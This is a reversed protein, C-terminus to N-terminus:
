PSLVRFYNMPATVPNTASTSAGTAVIPGGVNTWTGSGNTSGPMGPDTNGVIHYTTGTTSQWTIVFNTGTSDLAASTISFSAPTITVSGSAGTLTYNGAATGGLTLSGFSTITQHGVASGSLGATGGLTVNDSGVKNAITLAAAAVNTTGDYTKTGSLVVPLKTITLKTSTNTVGNLSGDGAYGYSITYPSGTVPTSGPNYIFSFDGTGDTTTTTQTNGNVTVYITEGMAPYTPGTAYSVKGGLSVGTGYPTSPSATLGSFLPVPNGGSVVLNVNGGSSSVSATAGAAIGAGTVTVTEGGGDIITGSATQIMTYTGAGLPAGSLNNNVTFANGGLSLSGAAVYLPPHTIDGNPSTPTFTLNVPRSGLNMSGNSLNTIVAATTGQAIGTGSATLTTNASLTYPSVNSVNLTGGAAIALTASNNISGSNSIILSGAGITTNGSYTNAGNLVMAGTGTKTLATKASAGDKIVGGFIGTTNGEGLQLTSLTAGSNTVVGTGTMMSFGENLGAMDFLGGAANSITVGTYVQDGGTGGLQILGGSNIISSSGLAHASSASAKALLLTGANANVAFFSNDGTGSLTLTGGSTKKITFAASGTVRGSITLSGAPTDITSTGTNNGFQRATTAASAGTYSLTGGSLIVNNTSIASTGSDAITNVSLTGASITTIGTYTNSGTLVTTGTGAKTFGAGGSINGSITVTPTGSLAQNQFTTTGSGPLTWNGSFTVPAAVLGVFIQSGSITTVPNTITIPGTAGTNGAGDNAPTALVTSAVGWTIPGTGFSNNNNFNLGASTGLLTGGSYTNNGYLYLSGNGTNEVRGSGTIPVTITTQNSATLNNIVTTGAFANLAGTGSITNTQGLNPTASGPNSLGTFTVGPSNLTMTTAGSTNPMALIAYAGTPFDVTSATLTSSLSWNATSTDWSGSGPPSGANNDWYVLTETTGNGAQLTLAAPASSPQFMNDPSGNYYASITYTGAAPSALSSANATAVGGATVTVPTGLPTSNAYFTVTGGSASPDPSITATITPATGTAVATPPTIVTTTPTTAQSASVTLVVESGVVSLSAEYGPAVGQGLVVVIPNPAGVISGTTGDGVQILNYSGAFLPAVTNSITIINNNFQLAGQSVWLAADDPDGSTALPTYIMLLDQSGLNVTGGAAGVITAAGVNIFANGAGEGGAVLLTNTSLNWTPYDSVDLTGTRASGNTGIFLTSANSISGTGTLQLTGDQVGVQGSFTNTASLALIGTGTKNLTNTGSIVGSITVLNGAGGSSLNVTGYAGLIAGNTVYTSGGANGKGGSLTWSGSFTVGATNGVINLGTTTGLYNIFPNPITVSSNGAVVLAGYTTASGCNLLYVPNTSTGFSASNNFNAIGGLGDGSYGLYTGGTYTNTGFLSLTGTQEIALGGNAPGAITNSIIINAVSGDSSGSTAFGNLNSTGLTFVGTGNITVICSFPNLPGDFIGNLTHNANATVTFTTTSTADGTNTAGAGVAFCAAAGETWGVTTAQGGSVTAWKTTEWTGALSGATYVGSHVGEPDWYDLVAQAKYALLSSVLCLSPLLFKLKRM